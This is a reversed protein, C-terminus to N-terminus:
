RAFFENFLHNQMTIDFYNKVRESAHIATKKRAEEPLLIMNNLQKNLANYDRRKVIWGTENHVINERLGEADSAVVLLGCAQAELVANSFGEQVSFQIYIDHQHLLSIIQEPNKQGVFKIHKELGLKKATFILEEFQVGDGIITYTFDVGQNKLQQLAAFIYVFGKKWHMRCTSMLKLPSSISGPKDKIKFQQSNIAPYIKTVPMNQPMGASIAKQTIDDSISHVEDIYKWINKIEKSKKLPQISVDYGRISVTMKCGLAKAVTERNIALGAFEFHLHDVPHSLIHFNSILYKITYKRSGTEGLTIHYYKSLRSINKFIYYIIIPLKLVINRRTQPSWACVLKYPFNGTKYANSFVTVRYGNAILGNIKNTIFTESYVPPKTVVIGIHKKM